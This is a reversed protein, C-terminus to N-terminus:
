PRLSRRPRPLRLPEENVGLVLDLAWCWRLHPCPDRLHVLVDQRDCGADQLADALIPLLSLDNEAELAMHVVNATRWQPNLREFSFPGFIERVFDASHFEDPIQQFIPVTRSFPSYALYALGAYIEPATNVEVEIQVEARTALGLQVLTQGIETMAGVEGCSHFLAEAHPYALDLLDKDKDPKRNCFIQEALTVVARCVGPLQEWKRRACSLLYWRSKQSQPEGSDLGRIPFLVGLMALADTTTQWTLEDM